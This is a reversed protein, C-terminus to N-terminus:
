TLFAPPQLLDWANARNHGGRQNVLNAVPLLASCSAVNGGPDPQTRVLMRGAALLPEATDGLLAIAVQSPQQNSASHGDNSIRSLVARRSRPECSYHRASGCLHSCNREGVPDRPHGPGDHNAALSVLLRLQQQCRSYVLQRPCSSTICFRDNRPDPSGAQTLAVEFAHKRNPGSERLANPGAAM